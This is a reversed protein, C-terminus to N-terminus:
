RASADSRAQTSCHTGELFQNGTYSRLAARPPPPAPVEALYACVHYHRSAIPHAVSSAAFRALAALHSSAEESRAHATQALLAARQQLSPVPMHTAARAACM